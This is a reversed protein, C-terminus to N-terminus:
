TLPLYPSIPTVAAHDVDCTWLNLYLPVSNQCLPFARRCFSGYNPHKRPKTVGPFTRKPFIQLVAFKWLSERYRLIATEMM